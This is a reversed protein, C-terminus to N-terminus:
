SELASLGPLQQGAVYELSAGGGTSVHDFRDGMGFASVAAETDGGGVVRFAHTNDAIAQAISRCGTAFDPVEYLGVPGNWFITKAQQIIERYLAITKPGIDLFKWDAPIRQSSWEVIQTKIGAKTEAAAVLDIPLVIRSVSVSSSVAPTFAKAQELLARAQELPHTTQGHAVRSSDVKSSGVQAGLSAIFTNALAGGILVVDARQMVSEIVEVKDSIKAGGLVAVFPRTPTELVRRLAEVEKEVLFGMAKDQILRPLADMSAHARHLNAFADQVFVPAEGGLALLKRAFEIDNKEEGPDFRLNEIFLVQGAQLAHAQRVSDAGGVDASLAVPQKLLTSLRHVVPAFSMESVRKGEPRGGHALMILRVGQALLHKVTPLSAVMRTDDTVGGASMPVNYDVRLLVTKGSYNRERISAIM